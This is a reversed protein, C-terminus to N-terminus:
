IIGNGNPHHIEAHCNKCVLICKDLEKIREPTPRKGLLQNMKQEKEEPNIHHFDLAAFNKNYGCISCIIAGYKEIIFPKWQNILLNRRERKKERQQELHEKYYKKSYQRLKEKNDQYWRKRKEKNNQQYQKNKKLIEERNKQYYKQKTIKIKEQNNTTYLKREKELREKNATYWQHKQKEVKEKNNQLYKQNYKKREEKNKLPM